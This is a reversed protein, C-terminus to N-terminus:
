KAFKKRKKKENIQVDGVSSLEGGGAAGQWTGCCGASQGVYPVSAGAGMERVSLWERFSKLKAKKMKAKHEASEGEEDDDDYDIGTKEEEKEIEKHTMRERLSKKKPIHKYDTKHAWEECDVKGGFGGTAFCAKSQQKSSFPM